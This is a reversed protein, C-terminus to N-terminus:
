REAHSRRRGISVPATVVTEHSALWDRLEGATFTVVSDLKRHPLLAKGSKESTRRYVWSVPRGMAEAAEVVGLRTEPPVQWLKERWTPAPVPRPPAPEMPGAALLPALAEVPVTTGPPAAQLWAVLQQRDDLMSFRGMLKGGAPLEM